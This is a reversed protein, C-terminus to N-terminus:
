CDASPFGYAFTKSPQKEDLLVSGWRFLEIMGMLNLQTCIMYMIHTVVCVCKTHSEKM